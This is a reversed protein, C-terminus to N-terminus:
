RAVITVKEEKEQVNKILKKRTQSYENVSPCMTIKYLYDLSDRDCQRVRRVNYVVCM